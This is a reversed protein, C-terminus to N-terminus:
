QPRVNLHSIRAGKGFWIEVLLPQGACPARYLYQREEGKTRREILELTNVDRCARLTAAIQQTRATDLAARANETLPEASLSGQATRALMAGVQQTVDPETDEIAKAAPAQASACGALLGAALLAICAIRM